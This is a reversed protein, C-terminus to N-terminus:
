KIVEEESVATEVTLTNPDNSGGALSTNDAVITQTTVCILVCAPQAWLMSGFQRSSECGSLALVFVLLCKM